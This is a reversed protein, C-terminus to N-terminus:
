AHVERHLEQLSNVEVEDIHDLAECTALAGNLTTYYTVRRHVAERRIENSERIAQKGETTNVILAIEDNKIMDVIHPRGERVKNARRCGIGAEELVKATGSTAVIEFGREQLRRALEVARPKDRERVSILCLGSRPLTVGSGAQAKAYAEGFTRGTGMVEGTSKMEPGLIPDSEPFKAFPFVAEKVSFYGAPRVEAVGLEALKRGTMVRAGVKALPVGTAKSVFPATRSARPNVELVYVIGNQIAFQINLQGVVKLALALKTTQERLEAQLEPTLSNPPLCCGSDGSHVGAQEVHEMIGGIM